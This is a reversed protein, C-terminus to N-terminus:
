LIGGGIDLCYYCYYYQYYYNLHRTYYASYTTSISSAAFLYGFMAFIVYVNFGRSLSVYYM